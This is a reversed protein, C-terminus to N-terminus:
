RIDKALIDAIKVSATGDGFPNAATAMENYAASDTLLRAAEDFVRDTDTGIVKVTGASVAEPRETTNRLVLVPTGLSPAEEQIGGSDSLILTAADMVKVFPLYDVPELRDIREAGSLLASVM